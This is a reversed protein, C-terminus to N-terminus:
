PFEMVSVCIGSFEEPVSEKRACVCVCVCVSRALLGDTKCVLFMDRWTCVLWYRENFKCCQACETTGVYPDGLPGCVQDCLHVARLPEGRRGSEPPHERWAWVVCSGTLPM